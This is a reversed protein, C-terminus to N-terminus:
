TEPKFFHFRNKLKNQIVDDKIGSMEFASSENSYSNKLMVTM